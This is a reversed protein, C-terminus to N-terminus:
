GRACSKVRHCMKKKKVSCFYSVYLM